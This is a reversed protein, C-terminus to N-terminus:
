VGESLEAVLRDVDRLLKDFSPCRDRTRELDMQQVMAAQDDVAVYRRGGIMNRSLHEKAGKIGEPEPPAAADQRIGRVGRLSEKSGLFWAEFEKSALVVAVPLGTAQRCRALLSPGLEAPCDEDADLLVLICGATARDALAQKVAREMEGPRVVRNRKVRFPRTVTVNFVDKAAIIRRLLVGISQAEAQGEVIPVVAASV